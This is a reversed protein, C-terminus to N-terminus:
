FESGIEGEFLLLRVLSTFFYLYSEFSKLSSKVSVQSWFNSSFLMLYTTPVFMLSASTLDTFSLLIKRNSGIYDIM